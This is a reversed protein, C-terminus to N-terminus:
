HILEFAHHDVFCNVCFVNSCDLSNHAATDHPISENGFVPLLHAARVISDVDIVALNLSGDDLYSPRVMWM